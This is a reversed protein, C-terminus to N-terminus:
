LDTQVSMSTTLVLDCGKEIEFARFYAEEMPLWEEIFRRYLKPGRARLRADQTEKETKLFIRLTYLDRYHPHLSYVGEVLILRSPPVCCTCRIEGKSCDYQGYCVPQGARLPAAVEAEFREYHINGGKEALRALTRLAPPLFFDDMAIVPAHYCASLKGALTTKGSAAGGELAVCVLPKEALARDIAQVAQELASM